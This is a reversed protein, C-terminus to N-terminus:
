IRGICSRLSTLGFGLCPLNSFLLGAVSSLLLSLCLAEGLEFFVPPCRLKLFVPACFFIADLLQFVLSLYRVGLASEFLGKM